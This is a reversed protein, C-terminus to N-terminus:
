SNVLSVVATGSHLLDRWPKTDPLLSHPLNRKFVSSSAPAAEQLLGTSTEELLMAPKEQQIYCFSTKDPLLVQKGEGQKKQLPCLSLAAAGPPQPGPPLPQEKGLLASLGQWRRSDRPGGAARGPLQQSHAQDMSHERPVSCVSISWCLLQGHSCCGEPM